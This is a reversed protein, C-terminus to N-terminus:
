NIVFFYFTGQIKTNENYCMSDVVIEFPATADSQPEAGHGLLFGDLRVKPTMGTCVDAHLFPGAPFGLTVGVLCCVLVASLSSM